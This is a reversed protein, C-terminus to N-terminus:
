KPAKRIGLIKSKDYPSISIRDSQNGGCVNIFQGITNIYTAVHGTWGDQSGRWFIVIDGIEADELSVPYPLKLWSRASLYGTPIIDNLGARRFAEGMMLGCWALDSDDAGKYGHQQMIKLLEPNSKAGAVEAIGYLKLLETLVKMTHYSKSDFHNIACSGLRFPLIAM